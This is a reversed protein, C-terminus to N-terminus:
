EPALNSDRSHKKANENEGKGKCTGIGDFGRRSGGRGGQRKRGREILEQTFGVGGGGGVRGGKLM